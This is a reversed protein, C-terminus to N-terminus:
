IKGVPPLFRTYNGLQAARESYASEGKHFGLASPLQEIFSYFNVILSLHPNSLSFSVNFLLFQGDCFRCTNLTSIFQTSKSNHFYQLVDTGIPLVESIWAGLYGELPTAEKSGRGLGEPDEQSSTVALNTDPQSFRLGLLPVPPGLGRRCRSSLFRHQSSAPASQSM